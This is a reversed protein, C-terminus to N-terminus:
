TRAQTFGHIGTYPCLLDAVADFLVSPFAYLLSDHQLYKLPLHSRLVLQDGWQLSTAGFSLATARHSLLSLPM